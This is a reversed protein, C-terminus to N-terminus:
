RRHYTLDFNDLDIRSMLIKFEDMVFGDGSSLIEFEMGAFGIYDGTPSYGNRLYFQRRATRQESNEALGDESEIDVMYIHDPHRHRLTSIARSGYGRGRSSEEIAMQLMYCINSWLRVVMYGVFTADDYLALFESDDKGSIRVLDDPDIYEAPPFAEKALVRIRDYDEMERTVPIADLIHDHVM